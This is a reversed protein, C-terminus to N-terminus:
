FHVAMLMQVRVSVGAKRGARFRTRRIANLAAQDAEGGIGKSLLVKRVAGNEDIFALIYVTGKAGGSKLAPNIKDNISTMGGIPEPMQEVAVYYTEDVPKPVVKPIPIVIKGSGTGPGTGNGSGTGTGTGTGSGKLGTTNLVGEKEPSKPKETIKTKIDATKKEKVPIKEEVSQPKVNPEGSNGGGPTGGLGIEVLSFDQRNPAKYFNLLFLFLIVHLLVSVGTSFYKSNSFM